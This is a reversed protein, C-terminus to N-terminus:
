GMVTALQEPVSLTPFHGSELVHVTDVPWTSIMENQLAPSVIKDITTRIYTKPVSGFREESVDFPAVFPESAQREAMLPLIRQIESDTVDHFAIDRLAQESVTVYSQDESFNLAPLYEGDPDRKMAEYVSDGNKLLFATVYILREVKEPLREAVGSIVAGGLSHGALIVKHDFREVV